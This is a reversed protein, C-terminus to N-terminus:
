STPDELLKRLQEAEAPDLSSVFCGITAMRDSSRSLRDRMRSAALDAETMTATYAYARGQKM